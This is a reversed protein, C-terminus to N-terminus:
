RARLLEILRDADGAVDATGVVAGAIFVLVAALALPSTRPAPLLLAHVRAPVSLRAFALCNPSPEAAPQLLAVRALTRAALHRDGVHSAALEDAERECAFDLLRPLAILPPDIAAAIRVLLRLLHHGRQNHAREHTLVVRRQGRDLAEMLGRTAIVHGRRPWGAVAVAHVDRSDIVTLESPCARLLDAAQRRDGLRRILLQVLMSVSLVLLLTAAATMATPPGLHSRGGTHLGALAQVRPLRQAALGVLVTLSWLWAAAVCLGAAALCRSALRPTLRSALHPAAAALAASWLLPLYLAVKV